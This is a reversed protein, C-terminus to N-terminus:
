HWARRAETITPGPTLFSGTKAGRRLQGGQPLQGLLYQQRRPAGYSWRSGPRILWGVTPDSQVANSAHPLGAAAANADHKRIVPAPASIINPTGCWACCPEGMHWTAGPGSLHSAQPVVSDRVSGVDLPSRM